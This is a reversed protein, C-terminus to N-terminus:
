LAAAVSGEAVGGNGGGGGMPEGGSGGVLPADTSAVGGSGPGGALGGEGTM